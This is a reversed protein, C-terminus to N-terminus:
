FSAPHQRSKRRRHTIVGVLGLSLLALSSPEPAPPPALDVMLNFSYTRGLGPNTFGTLVQNVVIPGFGPSGKHDTSGGGQFDLLPGNVSNAGAYVTAASLLTFTQSNPTYTVNQIGSTGPTFTPGVWITTYTSPSGTVLLPVLGRTGDAGTVASNFDIITYTGAPLVMPNNLDINTPTGSDINGTSVPTNGIQIPVAGAEHALTLIALLLSLSVTIRSTRLSM